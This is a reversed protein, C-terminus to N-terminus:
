DTSNSTKPLLPYNRDRDSLVDPELPWDIGVAPDNWRVGAAHEPAYTGNIFYLVEANDVLTLLGHGFGRPIYLSRRNEETLAIAFWKRFTASEPRLDVAVDFIAGRTCRVLKAEAHPARQFHIGRLTSRQKSVSVCVQDIATFLGAKEFEDLAFTRAFLGREDMRPEIDVISLGSLPTPSVIV